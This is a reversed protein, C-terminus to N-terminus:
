HNLDEGIQYRVGGLKRRLFPDDRDCEAFDVISPPNGNSVAPGANWFRKAPAHELLERLGVAGIATAAGARSQTEGDDFLDDLMQVSGYAEVRSGIVSRCEM